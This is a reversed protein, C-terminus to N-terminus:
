RWRRACNPRPTMCSARETELKGRLQALLRDIASTLPTLEAYVPNVGLPQLDDPGRAAIRNSLHRLPRLGRSVALWIAGLVLLFSVVLYIGMDRSIKLLLWGPSFKEEAVAVSWRPSATRYARM